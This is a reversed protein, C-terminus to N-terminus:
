KDSLEIDLKVDNETLVVSKEVRGYGVYNFILTYNGKALNLAYYGYDNTVTGNGIEKVFVSVGLLKEGNRADKIYGSITKKDQAQALFSFLLTFILLVRKIM